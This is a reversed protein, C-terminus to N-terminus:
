RLNHLSFQPNTEKRENNKRIKRKLWEYQKPFLFNFFGLLQDRLTDNRLFMFYDLLLWSWRKDRLAALFRKLKKSNIKIIPELLIIKKELEKHIREYNVVTQYYAGINNSAHQRYKLLPRKVYYMSGLHNALIFVLHDHMIPATLPLQVLLPKLKGHFMMSCGPVLNRLLTKSGLEGKRPKIKSYKWFSNHIVHLNEDCVELDSYVLTANQHKDFEAHLMQIKDKQWADDQDCFCIYNGSALSTGKLFNPVIGVNYENKYVKIRPDQSAFQLAIAYSQDTSADDVIIIELHSYTQALISEIQQKLFREGNYIGVICSILPKMM